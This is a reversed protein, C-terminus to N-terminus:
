NAARHLCLLSFARAFSTPPRGSFRPPQAKRRPRRARNSFVSFQQVLHQAEEVSQEGEAFWETYSNEQVIPHAKVIALAKQAFPSHTSKINITMAETSTALLALTAYTASPM